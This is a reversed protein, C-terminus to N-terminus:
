ALEIAISATPLGDAQAMVTVNTPLQHTTPRLPRLLAVARGRWTVRYSGYFSSTDQPDGSGVAVVEVGGGMVAFHVKVRADPVAVGFADVVQVSVYALASRDQACLRQTDTILRLASPVGATLLTKTVIDGRSGGSAIATLNGAQYPVSSFVATYQTATSVEAEGILEDNVFLSVRPHSRVYVSVNLLLPTQAHMRAM